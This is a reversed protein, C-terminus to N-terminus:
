QHAQYTKHAEQFKVSLPGKLLDFLCNVDESKKWENFVEQESRHEKSCSVKNFHVQLASRLKRAITKRECIHEKGFANIWLEEVEAVYRNIADRRPKTETSKKASGGPAASIVALVSKYIWPLKKSTIFLNSNAEM